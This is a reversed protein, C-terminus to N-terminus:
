LMSTYFFISRMSIKEEIAYMYRERPWSHTDGDQDSPVGSKYLAYLRESM